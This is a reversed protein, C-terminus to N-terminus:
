IKSSKRVNFLSRGQVVQLGGSKQLDVFNCFLKRIVLNIKKIGKVSNLLPKKTKFFLYM